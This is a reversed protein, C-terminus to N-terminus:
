WGAMVLLCEIIGAGAMFLAMLWCIDQNERILKLM